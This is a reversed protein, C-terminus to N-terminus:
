DRVEAPGIWRTEPRVYGRVVNWRYRDDSDRAVNLATFGTAREIWDITLGRAHHMAVDVVFEAPLLSTDIEATIENLGPKFSLMAGGGDTNGVTVIRTGDPTSIGIEMIVDDLRKKVEYTASIRFPEGLYIKDSPVGHGDQVVARRLMRRLIYGRGNNAPLVGDGILFTTARIHDAVVRM